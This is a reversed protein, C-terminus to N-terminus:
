GGSRHESGTARQEVGVAQRLYARLESDSVEEWNSPIPRLRRSVPGSQFALWGNEWGPSVHAPAREVAVTPRGAGARTTVMRPAPLVDWVVWKRGDDDAFERYGM